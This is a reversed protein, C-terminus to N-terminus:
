WAMVQFSPKLDFWERMMLTDAFDPSRGLVEKVKEKPLVAKKGDKDMNYQKVQELEQIIQAKVNVDDCDIFLGGKNIREALRFYCQSKLNAYNEDGFNLPNPLPRSNNVFGKYGEYDVVGGGLGDEDCLVNSKPIGMALREAEIMGGSVNLREKSWWKIKCRWGDWVACIIKDGGLRALDSTIYKEGKLHEFDNTFCDTIRDYNILASPDSDYEWEGELLRKKEASNLTRELHELYGPPLKKNDHPLAQVFRKWPEIKGNKHKQYYEYYLYNKSPNCTQLLKGPLNYEENKWRGISIALGNKAAEEFEGAEEIWGRTMQMSGFRQFQPDSPLSKADVLYVRSGNYLTFFSDQGNYNYYRDSIGWHKFVEYISPITYKRLDNLEKRAIFYHTGPYIFADGFILSCGLYSKGSGKSGGYVIDSVSDDVWQTAVMKQKDNGNTDFQLEV